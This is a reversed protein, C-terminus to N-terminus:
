NTYEKLSNAEYLLQCKKLDLQEEYVVENRNKISEGLFSLNDKNAQKKKPTIKSNNNFENINMFFTECTILQKSSSVNENVAWSAARFFMTLYLCVIFIQNKDDTRRVNTVSQM